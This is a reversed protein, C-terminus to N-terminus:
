RRRRRLLAVAGLALVSVTAPEPVCITKIVIQSVNTSPIIPFSIMEGEPNPRIEILGNYTYWNDVPWQTHPYPAPQNTGPPNTSPPNTASGIAKDATVQWFIKKVKLPDPNNPIWIDITGGPEGCHLTPIPQNPDQPGPNRGADM